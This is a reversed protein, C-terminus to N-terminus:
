GGERLGYRALEEHAAGEPGLESSFLSFGTVRFPLGRWGGYHGMFGALRAREVADLRPPLRALTVHPRFRRRELAVGAGRLRTCVKRQLGELAASRELGVWIVRPARGGFSGVGAPVLDFAEAGLGDLADHVAELRGGELAGIFALTLHLNERPVMRGLPLDDQLRELGDLVAEPLGIAVFLRVRVAERGCALLVVRQM